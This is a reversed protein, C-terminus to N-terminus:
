EQVTKLHITRYVTGARESSIKIKVEADRDTRLVWETRARNDTPSTSFFDHVAMKNSRGALHGSEVLRKGSVIEVGAPPDIEVRVPRVAKRKKGQESTNTPLFGTNDVVLNIHFSGNGMPTVELTHVDLHPLLDGLALIYPINRAVEAELLHEPPNRWTYMMNWGGLEIKGLQPHEFQYWEVFSGPGAHQDAWQLIQLDESHPHDRFWEIFQREKIGAETPLDWVEITYAFIGLHDFLWDDFAGTTIEKPSYKFEHFTNASRYGTLESGIDSIKKMVWLDETEMEEDPRTSYPRLIVRSFTHYTIALNINPHSTIFNVLARTEPESTPYPGAGSQVEETRWEFPFNRNFDLGEFPQAFKVVYGDFDRLYGEPWVRFYEGGIDTPSRKQMMRPDLDSIKWDGNPDHVRMSLIRGDRDIDQEHLGEDKEAWPYPRVGSRIYKPISSMALESGDPNVRPVIYFVSNELLRTIRPDNGNGQLLTQAVRMSVTTGAIETAHINADVWVAPKESDPGTSKNTLTLLWIPRKEYSEGISTLTVLHPYIGVWDSLISSLQQNTLYHNM